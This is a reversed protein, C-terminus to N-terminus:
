LLAKLLQHGATRARTDSTPCDRHNQSGVLHPARATTCAKRPVNATSVDQRLDGIRVLFFGDANPGPQAIHQAPSTPRSKMRPQHTTGQSRQMCVCTQQIQEICASDAGPQKSMQLRLREQSIRQRQMMVSKYSQRRCQM